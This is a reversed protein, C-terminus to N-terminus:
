KSMGPSSLGPWEGIPKTRQPREAHLIDASLKLTLLSVPPLFSSDGIDKFDLSTASTTKSGTWGSTTSEKLFHSPRERIAKKSPLVATMNPLIVLTSYLAM